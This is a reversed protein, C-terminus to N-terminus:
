TAKLANKTLGIEGFLVFRYRQEMSEYETMPLGDIWPTSLTEVDVVSMSTPDFSEDATITRKRKGNTSTGVFDGASTQATLHPPSDRFYEQATSTGKSVPRAATHSPGADM